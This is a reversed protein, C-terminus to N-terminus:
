PCTLASDDGALLDELEQHYRSAQELQGLEKHANGLNELCGPIRALAGAQRSLNLAETLPDIASSYERQEIHTLGIGYLAASQDDAQGTERALSLARDYHRLAEDCQDRMRCLDGLNVLVKVQGNANALGTCLELAKELHRRASDIADTNTREASEVVLWGLNNLAAAQMIDNGHREFLSAAEEANSFARATDGTAQYPLILRVLMYARAQDDDLATASSLGRQLTTLWDEYHGRLRYYGTMRACLDWVQGHFGETNGAIVAAKLQHRRDDLWSLAAAHDPIANPNADGKLTIQAPELRHAALMVLNLYHDLLRKLAERRSEATEDRDAKDAAYHKTLDHFQYRDTAQSDLMRASTLTSLVTEASRTTTDALAAAAQADVPMAPALGLLRFMRQAPADLHRYSLELAKAVGRHGIALESLPADGNRLRELLSSITWQPQDRLRAAAIRVALPLNGCIGVIAALTETDGGIRDPGAIQRFLEMSDEISLPSLSLLHIDDLGSLRIRSTIFVLCGEAAPLLPEVQDESAANDLIILLKRNALLSRFVAARDDTLRPIKDAPIGLARLMRDLVDVPSVPQSGHTFGHLNVYLQGDPFRDAVRHAAHIVLASKGVGAMGDVAFVRARGRTTGSVAATLAHIEPQRGVYRALDSPLQAPVPTSAGPAEPDDSTLEDARLIAVHLAKLADSFDLGSQERHETTATRYLALAESTRHSRHLATMRAAILKERLPYRVTLEALEPLLAEHHGAELEAEVRLEEAALRQEHLRQGIRDRLLEDAAGDLLPGRWLALAAALCRGREHPDPVARAAAVEAEFRLADVREPAIHLVYGTGEHALEVLSSDAAELQTRLRSIYVRIVQRPNKPADGDWLLQELRSTTISRNAELALLGLLLRERRRARLIPQGNSIVQVTGLM